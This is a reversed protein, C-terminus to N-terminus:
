VTIDYHFTAGYNIHLVHLFCFYPIVVGFMIVNHCKDNKLLFFGTVNTTIQRKDNISIVINHGKNNLSSLQMHQSMKSTQRASM